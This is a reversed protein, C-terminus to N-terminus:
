STLCRQLQAEDWVTVGLSEAKDLKSGPNEGAVVVSTNKSVSGTVKAGLAKLKTKAEERPMTLTGTLVFTQGALPKPQRDVVIPEWHIGAAILADVQAAKDSNQFYDVIREAVIPGIDDLAQLEELNAQRIPALDGYYQALTESTVEGVDRIGLAYLFKSLTTKKSVALANLLNQASQEGMRELDALQHLTLHYLDAPQEVLGDNVLQVVLKDGLGEIDMAKRSAFHWLAETRQAPCDWGNPCRLAVEDKDKVLEAHCSPCHTPMYIAEAAKPHKVSKVVEPIVDGARRVIVTDGVSLDKRRIEDENHLTANSVTVGGVLVPTLRAVPTIVGTRGVQFEVRELITEVEQAPFKRAIAWRPARSVFGLEDQQAYDDVKYVVGDIEYPLADRIKAIDEYYALCGAIGKVVCQDKALQFGYRHLVQLTESHTKPRDFGNSLGLSYAIFTLPRQATVKSDLQRLSGAAANRPNAFTKEGKAEAEANMANFGAKSMFVEGRVELLEPPTTTHLKLPISSITKVNTTVNEGITGDGRTAAQTLIGKEYVLSLALGDIKPECNYQLPAQTDLLDDVRQAFKEVDQHNFANALSLMPQAHKVPAFETLAAGGVRQTPSDATVLEPHKAELELLEKFLADYVFDSVRSEGLTYYQYGYENIQHRLAEVHQHLQQANM